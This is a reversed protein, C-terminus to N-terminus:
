ITQRQLSQRTPKEVEPANENLLLPKYKTCVFLEM